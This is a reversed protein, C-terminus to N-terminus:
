AGNYYKGLALRVCAEKLQAPTQKQEVAQAVVQKVEDESELIQAAIHRLGERDPQELFLVRDIRGPRTATRAALAPDISEVNNTTIFLLTGDQEEVGDILNLLCDFTVGQENPPKAINVRGKFITDIDEIVFIRTDFHSVSDRWFRSLEANDMSALDFVYVPLDLEEAIARIISTKGTGPAGHLLFGRKWVIDKEKYWDRSKHWVDIEQVVDKADQRLSLKSLAAKRQRPGVDDWSFGLPINQRQYINANQSDEHDTKSAKKGEPEDSGRKDKNKYTGYLYVIRYKIQMDEETQDNLSAAREQIFKHANFTWRLYRFSISHTDGSVWIPIMGKWFTRVTHATHEVPLHKKQQEPKYYLYYRDFSREGFPSRKLNKNFYCMISSALHSDNVQVPVVIYNAIRGLFDRFKSWFMIVLSFGAAIGAGEMIDINM